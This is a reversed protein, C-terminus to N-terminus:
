HEKIPLFPLVGETQQHYHSSSSCPQLISNAEIEPLNHSVPGKWSTANWSRLREAGMGERQASPVQEGVLRFTHLVEDRAATPVRGSLLFWSGKPPFPLRVSPVPIRQGSVSGSPPIQEWGVQLLEMGGLGLERCCM